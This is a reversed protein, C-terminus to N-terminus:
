AAVEDEAGVNVRVEGTLLVSMLASKLRALQQKARLNAEMSLRCERISAGIREQESAPPIAVPISSFKSKNLIPVATQAAAAWLRPRAALMAAAVFESDVDPNCIITNIQQNTLCPQTSIGLKGITAGICTVMVADKPVGRGTALGEDSLTRSTTAVLGGDDSLDGPTVFPHPGNWYHAEKTKPTQGTVVAGLDSVQGVIWEEPIEGIETQKFRTHRGPIGRTLLEQMLGKKVVQVQDIVAQTKEIAEDVSSLIAAIKRQEPLAPLPMDFKDLWDDLKFVMKEIDVGVSSHFCTRQFYSTHSFLELYDLLLDSSPRICTYENSVLAGALHKPVIGCAGHIIQRRSILFDGEDIFFQTKTKIESGPKTDRETIGGRNRKANVLQYVTDDAVDAPRSVVEFLEGFKRREWGTPLNLEQPFGPDVSPPYQRARAM